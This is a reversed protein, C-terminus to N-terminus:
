RSGTAGTIFICEMKRDVGGILSRRFEFCNNYYTKNKAYEDVGIFDQLNYAKIEGSAIKSAIEERRQMPEVGDYKEVYDFNAVVDTLNYQYKEPNNKHVLYLEASKTTTRIKNVFNEEVHLANAVAQSTTTERFTLVMHFHPKKLEGDERVDKDHKIIAYTKLNTLQSVRQEILSIDQLDYYDFYQM